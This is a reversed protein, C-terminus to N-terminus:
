LREYDEKYKEILKEDNEKLIVYLEAFTFVRMTRKIFLEMVEDENQGDELLVERIRGSLETKFAIEDDKDIEIGSDLLEAISINYNSSDFM